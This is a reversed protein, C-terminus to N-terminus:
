GEISIVPIFILGCLAVCICERKLHRQAERRFMENEAAHDRYHSFIGNAEM